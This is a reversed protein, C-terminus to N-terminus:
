IKNIVEETNATTPTADNAWHDINLLIEAPIMM